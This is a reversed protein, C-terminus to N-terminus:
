RGIVLRHRNENAYYAWPDAGSRYYQGAKWAIGYYTMSYLGNAYRFVDEPSGTQIHQQLRAMEKAFTLRNTTFVGDDVPTQSDKWRVKFPDEFSDAALLSDPLQELIAVARDFQFNLIHRSAILRKLTGSLYLPNRTLWKEFPTKNDQQSLWHDLRTLAPITFHDFPTFYAPEIPQSPYRGSIQAK